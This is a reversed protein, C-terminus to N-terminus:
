IVSYVLSLKRGKQLLGGARCFNKQWIEREKLKALKGIPHMM